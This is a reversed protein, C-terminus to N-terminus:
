SNTIADYNQNLKISHAPILALESDCWMGAEIMANGFAKMWFRISNVMNKGVGLILVADEDNFSRNAKVFDYGKKLWLHRCQFTEHGSFTYKTAMIRIEVNKIM